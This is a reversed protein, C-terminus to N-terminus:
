GFTGAVGTELVRAACFMSERISFSCTCAGGSLKAKTLNDPRIAVEILPERTAERQPFWVHSRCIRRSVWGYVAVVVSLRGTLEANAKM